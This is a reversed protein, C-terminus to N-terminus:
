FFIPLKDKNKSSSIAVEWMKKIYARFEESNRKDHNFAARIQFYTCLFAQFSNITGLKQLWDKFIILATKMKKGHRWNYVMDVLLRNDYETKLIENMQEALSYANNYYSKEKKMDNKEFCEQAKDYEVYIQKVNKSALFAKDSSFGCAKFLRFTNEKLKDYEASDHFIM